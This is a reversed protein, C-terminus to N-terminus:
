KEIFMTKLNGMYAKCCKFALLDPLEQHDENEPPHLLLDTDNPAKKMSADGTKTTKNKIRHINGLNKNKAHQGIYTGVGGWFEHTM